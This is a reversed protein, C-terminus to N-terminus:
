ESRGPALGAKYFPFKINIFHHLALYRTTTTETHNQFKMWMGYKTLMVVCSQKTLHVTSINSKKLGVVTVQCCCSSGVYTVSMINSIENIKYLKYPTGVSMTYLGISRVGSTHRQIAPPLRLVQVSAVRVGPSLAFEVCFRGAGYDFTCWVM